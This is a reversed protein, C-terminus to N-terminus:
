FNSSTAPWVAYPQDIVSGTETGDTVDYILPQNGGPGCIGQAESKYWLLTSNLFVPITRPGKGIMVPSGGHTLDILYVNHTGDARPLAYALYRGDASMTPYQWPVGLLYRKAGAAATWTWVDGQQRYYLTDPLTPSWVAMAPQARVPWQSAPPSVTLKAQAGALVLLSTESPAENDLVFLHSGPHAYGAFMSDDAGGCRGGHPDPLSAVVQDGAKTTLHVKDTSGPIDPSWWAVQDLAPSVGLFTPLENAPHPLQFWHYRVEPLDVVAYLFDPGNRPVVVHNADILQVGAISNTGGIFVCASRPRSPDAYDRLVVIGSHLAVIAVPDTLGIAGSCTIQPADPPPGGAPPL